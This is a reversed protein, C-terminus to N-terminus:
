HGVYWTAETECWSFLRRLMAGIYFHRQRHASTRPLSRPEPFMSRGVIHLTTYFTNMVYCLNLEMCSLLRYHCLSFLSSTVYLGLVYLLKSSLVLLVREYRFLLLMFSPLASNAADEWINWSLAPLWRANIQMIRGKRGVVSVRVKCVYKGPLHHGRSTCERICLYILTV